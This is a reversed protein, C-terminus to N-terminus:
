QLFDVAEACRQQVLPDTAEVCRQEVIPLVTSDCTFELSELGQRSVRHSGAELDPYGPADRFGVAHQRERRKPLPVVVIREPARLAAAEVGLRQVQDELAAEIAQFRGLGYRLSTVKTRVAVLLAAGLVAGVACALIPYLWRSRQWLRANLM